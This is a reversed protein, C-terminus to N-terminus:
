LGELSSDSNGEGNARQAVMQAFNEEGAQSIYMLRLENEQENLRFFHLVVMAGSDRSKWVSYEPNMKKHEEQYSPLFDEALPFTGLAADLSNGAYYAEGYVQGLKNKLDEFIEKKDGRYFQYQGAYFVADNENYVTKGGEVPYVFWLTVGAEHGAVKREENIRATFCWPNVEDWYGTIAAYQNADALARACYNGNQFEISRMRQSARIEGFTDGFAFEAFAIPKDTMPGEAMAWSAPLLLALTLLLAFFRKM